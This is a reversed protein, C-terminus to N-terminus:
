HDLSKCFQGTPRRSLNRRANQAKSAALLVKKHVVIAAKQRSAAWLRYVGRQAAYPTLLVPMERLSAKRHQGHTGRGDRGHMPPVGVSRIIHRAQRVCPWPRARPSATEAKRRAGCTDRADQGRNSPPVGEVRCPCAQGSCLRLFARAVHPIQRAPSLLELFSRAGFSLRGILCYIM